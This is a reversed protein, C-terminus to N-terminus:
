QIQFFTEDFGQKGKYKGMLFLRAANEASAPFGAPLEIGVEKCADL